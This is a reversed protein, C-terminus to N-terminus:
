ARILFQELEYEGYEKIYEQNEESNMYEKEYANVKEVKEDFEFSNIKEM